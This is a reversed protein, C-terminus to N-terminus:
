VTDFVPMGQEIGTMRKNSEIRMGHPYDCNTCSVWGGKQKWNHVSGKVKKKAHERLAEVQIEPIEITNSDKQEEM